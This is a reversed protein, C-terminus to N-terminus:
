QRKTLDGQFKYISFLKQLGEHSRGKDEKIRRKREVEEAEKVKMLNSEHVEAPGEEESRRVRETEEALIVTTKLDHEEPAGFPQKVVVVDCEANEVVFKSNSGVFFREVSGMSRRGMVVTTIGYNTVAKCILNGPNADAGKMMTFKYGLEQCKHGYHVLIKKAKEEQVQRLNELLSMTAYGIYTRQVEETVHM